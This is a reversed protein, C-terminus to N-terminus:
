LKIQLTLTAAWRDPEGELLSYDLDLLLVNKNRGWFHFAWGAIIRHYAEGEGPNPGEFWDYRGMVSSWIWPLRLEVFGSAGQYGATEGNVVWQSGAGKQRGRGTIYQATAAVYPHSWSVMVQHHRWDPVAFPDSEQVSANGHGYIFFYSLQLYPLLRGLPRASLRGEVVKGMNKEIGHYGTGNYVGVALSGWTGPYKDYMAKAVKTPLKRGLLVGATLGLDASNFLHQREAFMTGQMRYYNLHEEFDLWPMHVIGLEVFPESVVVTQVPLKLKAYLYKLRVKFDGTDDQHVDPTIRAELWETPKFKVNLYGRGVRFENFDVKQRGDASEGFGYRYQLYWLTGLHFMSLAELLKAWRHSKAEVPAEAAVARPAAEGRPAPPAVARPAPRAGPRPAAHGAARAAPWTATRKPAGQTGAPQASSPRAREAPHSPHARRVRRPADSPEAPRTMPAKSAAGSSAPQPRPVDAPAASAAMAAPNLFAFAFFGTLHRASSCLRPM